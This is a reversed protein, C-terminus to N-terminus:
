NRNPHSFCQYPLPWTDLRALLSDVCVILVGNLIIVVVLSAAMIRTISSFFLFFIIVYLYFLLSIYANELLPLLGLLLM